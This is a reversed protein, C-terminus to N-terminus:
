TPVAAEQKRQALLERRAGDLLCKLCGGKRRCAYVNFEGCGSPCQSAADELAVMLVDVDVRERWDPCDSPTGCDFHVKHECGSTPEPNWAGYRVTPRWVTRWHGCTECTHEAM